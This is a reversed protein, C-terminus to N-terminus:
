SEHIVGAELGFRLYEELRVHLNTERQPAYVHHLAGMESEDDAGTRIERPCRLSLQGYAPDGYREATFQPQVRIADDDSAPQCRHRRPTQSGPPVYSFRVCGDQRREALVPGKWTDTEGLRAALISNSVLRLIRAHVKGVVTSGTIELEGGAAAGSPAAYAVATQDSADVISDRVRVEADENARIGGVISHEIEVSVTSSAAILSAQGPQAPAGDPLVDIGPVLTCHVLRLRGGKSSAPIRVRAGVLVLGNLTVEAGEDLTIELEGTLGVTPRSGDAARLEIREGPGANIALAETFRDNGSVEVVGSGGLGAVATAISAPAAVEVPMGLDDAFTAVRAYAGGGIDASAGYHFSVVPNVMAVAQGDVTLTPPLALRGLVPDVLVRDTAPYAWGTGVDSLDSAAVATTPLAQGAFSIVLSEPYFDAPRDWLERRTIPQPVNGREALHTISAEAEARSFLPLNARLPNFLYRRDTAAPKVKQAPVGLLPYDRIRWVHLGVNPIDHRGRGAAIRRVDATHGATDFARGRATERRGNPRRVV